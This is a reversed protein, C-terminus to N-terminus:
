PTPSGSKQSGTICLQEICNYWWKGTCSNWTWQAQQTELPCDLNCFYLTKVNRNSHKSNFHYKLHSPKMGELAWFKSAYFVRPINVTRFCLLLYMYYIFLATSPAHNRVPSKLPLQFESSSNMCTSDVFAYIWPAHQHTHTSHLHLSTSLPNPRKKLDSRLIARSFITIAYSISSLVHSCFIEEMCSSIEEM